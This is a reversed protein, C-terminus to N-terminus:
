RFVDLNFIAAPIIVNKLFEGVNGKPIGAHGLINSIFKQSSDPNFVELDELGITRYFNNKWLGDNGLALSKKFPSWFNGGYHYIAYNVTVVLCTRPALLWMEQIIRDENHKTKELIYKFTNTIKLYRDYPIRVESIIKV